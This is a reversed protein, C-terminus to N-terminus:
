SIISNNYTINTLTEPLVSYYTLIVNNFNIWILISVQGVDYLWAYKQKIIKLYKLVVKSNFYFMPLFRQVYKKRQVNNIM